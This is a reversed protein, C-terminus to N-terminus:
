VSWPRNKLITYTYPKITNNWKKFNDITFGKGIGPLYMSKQRSRLAHKAKSSLNAWTGGKNIHVLGFTQLLKASEHSRVANCDCIFYKKQGNKRHTM